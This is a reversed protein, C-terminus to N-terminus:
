ESALTWEESILRSTAAGTVGILSIEGYAVNNDIYMMTWLQYVDHGSTNPWSEYLHHHVISVLNADEFRATAQLVSPQASADTVTMQVPVEVFGTCGSEESSLHYYHAVAPAGVPVSLYVSVPSSTGSTSQWTKDHIANLAESLMFGLHPLSANPDTILLDAPCTSFTKIHGSQGGFLELQDARATMASLFVAIIASHM